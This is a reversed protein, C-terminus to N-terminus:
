LWRQETLGVLVDARACLLQEAAAAESGRLDHHALFTAAASANANIRGLSEELLERVARQLHNPRSVRGQPNAHDYQQRELSEVDALAENGRM